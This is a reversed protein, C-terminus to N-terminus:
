LLSHLKLDRSISLRSLDETPAPLAANKLIKMGSTEANGAQQANLSLAKKEAYFCTRYLALFDSFRAEEKALEWLIRCRLSFFSSLSSNRVCFSYDSFMNDDSVRKQWLQCTLQDEPQCCYKELIQCLDHVVQEHEQFIYPAHHQTYYHFSTPSSMVEEPLERYVFVDQIWPHQDKFAEDVWTYNQRLYVVCTTWQEQTIHAGLYRFVDWIDNVLHTCHEKLVDPNFLSESPLVHILVRLFSCLEEKQTDCMCANRVLDFFTFVNDGKLLTPVLAYAYQQFHSKQIHSLMYPTDECLTVLRHFVDIIPPSLEQELFTTLCKYNSVWTQLWSLEQDFVDIRCARIIKPLWTQSALLAGPFCLEEPPDHAQQAHSQLKQFKSSNGQGKYYSDAVVFVQYVESAQCTKLAAVFNKKSVNPDCVMAFCTACRLKSFLSCIDTEEFHDLRAIPENNRLLSAFYKYGEDNEVYSGFRDDWRIAEDWIEIPQSPFITHQGEAAHLSFAQLFFLGFLLNYYM